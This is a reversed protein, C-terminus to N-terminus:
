ATRRRLARRPLPPAGGAGCTCCPPSAWGSRSHSQWCRAVAGGDVFGGALHTGGFAFAPTIILAAAGLITVVAGIATDAREYAM